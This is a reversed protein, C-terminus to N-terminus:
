GGNGENPPGGEARMKNIAEMAAQYEEPTVRTAEAQDELMFSAFNQHKRDAWSDTDDATALRYRFQTPDTDLDELHLKEGPIHFSAAEVAVLAAQAQSLHEDAFKGTLKSAARKDWLAVQAEAASIALAKADDDVIVTYHWGGDLDRGDASTMDEGVYTVPGDYYTTGSDDGNRRARAM